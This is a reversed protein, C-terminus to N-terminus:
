YGEKGLEIGHPAWLPWTATEAELETSSVSTDLVELGASGLTELIALFFKTLPDNPIITLSAVKKEIKQDRKYEPQPSLM